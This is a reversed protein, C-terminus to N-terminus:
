SIGDFRYTAVQGSITKLQEVYFKTEYQLMRYKPGVISLAAIVEQDVNRLPVAYSLVGDPSKDEGVAYGKRKIQKLQELFITKTLNHQKLIRDSLHEAIVRDRLSSNLHALMVKAGADTLFSLREGVTITVNLTHFGRFSQVCVHDTGSLHSLVVSENLRDRLQEMFPLILTPLRNDENVITALHLFRNGLRYYNDTTEILYGEEKLLKVHRYLSSKPYALQEVMDDIKLKRQQMSFLNLIKLTKGASM